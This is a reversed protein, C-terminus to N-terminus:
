AKRVNLSEIMSEVDAVPRELKRSIEKNSESGYVELIYAVEYAAWPERRPKRGRRKTNTHIYVRKRKPLKIPLMEKPRPILTGEKPNKPIKRDMEEAWRQAKLPNRTTGRHKASYWGGLADFYPLTVRGVTIFDDPTKM